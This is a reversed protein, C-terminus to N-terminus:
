VRGVSLMEAASLPRTFLAVPGLGGNLPLSSGGYSLRMGTPTTAWTGLGSQYVGVAVGNKYCWQRDNADSWSFAWCQWAESSQGSAGVDKLVGGATRRMAIEGVDPKKYVNLLDSGGECRWLYDTTGDAWVGAGPKWWMVLSGENGNFASFLGSAFVVDDNLGDFLAATQGDIGALGWTVGSATGGYRGTRDHVATGAREDLAWLALPGLAMLRGVYGDDLLLANTM